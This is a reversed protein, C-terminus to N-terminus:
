EYKLSTSLPHLNRSPPPPPEVVVACLSHLNRLWAWKRNSQLSVEQGVQVVDILWIVVIVCQQYHMFFADVVQDFIHAVCM